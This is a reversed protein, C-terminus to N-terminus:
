RRIRITLTDIRLAWSVQMDGSSIWQVIEVRTEQGGVGVLFFAIWSLVASLLLFTTTVVASTRAGLWPGFFGALLAGALPLFVITLYM